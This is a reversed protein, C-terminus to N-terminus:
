MALDAHQFLHARSVISHSWILEHTMIKLRRIYFINRIKLRLMLSQSNQQWKISFHCTSIARQFAYQFVNYTLWSTYNVHLFIDWLKCSSHLYFRCFVSNHSTKTISVNRMIHASHALSHPHSATSICWAHSINIEASQMRNRTHSGPSPPSKNRRRLTV